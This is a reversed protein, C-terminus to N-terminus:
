FCVSIQRTLSCVTFCIPSWEPSVFSLRVETLYPHCKQFSVEPESWVTRPGPVIRFNRDTCVELARAVANDWEATCMKVTVPQLMVISTNLGSCFKGCEVKGRVCDDAFHSVCGRPSLNILISEVLNGACGFTLMWCLVILLLRVRQWVLAPFSM